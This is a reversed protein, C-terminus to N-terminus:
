KIWEIVQEFNRRKRESINEEKNYGFSMISSVGFDNKNLLNEHELYSELKDRNFGEVPCSSIGLYSAAVLMNSLAIYSQKSSWYFLDKDDESIKFDDELFIKYRDLRMNIKDMSVEQIEEIIYRVYESDYRIHKSKRALIIVMYSGMSSEKEMGWSQNYIQKKIYENKIVLFKWPELGFSSPSLRGVELITRMDSESVQRDNDFESCLNIHNFFEIVQDSKNM